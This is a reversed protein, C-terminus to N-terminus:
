CRESANINFLSDTRAALYGKLTWLVSLGKCNEGCISCLKSLSLCYHKRYHTNCYLVQQLATELLKQREDTKLLLSDWGRNLEDLQDRLHSAEDGPSSELLESGASNVTEVTARHSLVDNRLVQSTLASSFSHVSYLFSLVYSIYVYFSLVYSIYIYISLCCM